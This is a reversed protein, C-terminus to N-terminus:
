RKRLADGLLNCGLAVLAIALGPVLALAQTRWIFQTGQSLLAGWSYPRLRGVGLFSLAAESLIVGASGLTAQVILPSLINPAVHKWMVRWPSAGLARAAIVFERERIELTQGRAVRAYGVWGNSVLAFIFVGIGASPAVALIALNLLIG